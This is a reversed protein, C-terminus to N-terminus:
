RLSKYQQIWATDIVDRLLKYFSTDCIYDQDYARAGYTHYLYEQQRLSPRHRGISWGEGKKADFPHIDFRIKWISDFAVYYNEKPIYTTDTTKIHSVENEKFFDVFVNTRPIPHKGTAVKIMTTLDIPQIQTLKEQRYHIIAYQTIGGTPLIGIKVGFGIRYSSTIKESSVGSLSLAFFCLFIFRWNKM